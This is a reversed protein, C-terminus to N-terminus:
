CEEQVFKRVANRARKLGCRCQHSVMTILESTGDWTNPYRFKHRIEDRINLPIDVEKEEKLEQTEIYARTIDCLSQKESEALSDFFAQLNM